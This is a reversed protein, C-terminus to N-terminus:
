NINFISEKKEPLKFNRGINLNPDIETAFDYITFKDKSKYQCFHWQADPAINKHIYNFYPKDIQDLSHGIIVVHKIYTLKTSFDPRRKMREKPKKGLNNFIKHLGIISNFLTDHDKESINEIIKEEFPGTIVYDNDTASGHIHFVNSKPIGYIRELVTTYNFTFYLSERSLELLKEIKTKDVQKIWKTMKPRINSCIEGVERLMERYAFERDSPSYQNSYENIIIMENYKGLATEFNSWLMDGVNELPFIKEMNNVFVKENNHNLWYRFDSFRSNLGHYLDFGNGIVFLTEQEHGEIEPIDLKMINDESM